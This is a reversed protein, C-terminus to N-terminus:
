IQVLDHIPIGNPYRDTTERSVRFNLLVGEMRALVITFHSKQHLSRVICGKILHGMYTKGAKTEFAKEINRLSIM